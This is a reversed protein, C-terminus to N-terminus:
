NVAAAPPPRGNGSAPHPGTSRDRPMSERGSAQSPLLGQSAALIRDSAAFCTGGRAIQRPFFVHPSQPAEGRPSHETRRLRNGSRSPSAAPFEIPPPLAETYILQPPPAPSLGARPLLM